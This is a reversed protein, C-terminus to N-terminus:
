LACGAYRMMRCMWMPGSHRVGLSAALARVRKGFADGQSRSALEAGPRRRLSQIGMAISRENARCGNVLPRTKRKSCGDYAPELDTKFKSMVLQRKTGALLRVLKVLVSDLEVGDRLETVCRM